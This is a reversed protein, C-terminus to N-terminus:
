TGTSQERSQLLSSFVCTQGSSFGVELLLNIKGRSKATQREIRTIVGPGLASSMIAAGERWDDDKIVDISKAVSNGEPVTAELEGRDESIRLIRDALKLLFEFDQVKKWKEPTIGTGHLAGLLGGTFAAISDTDTGITNVAEIIGDIPNKLNKLAIFLGAVVTSTGSGKTRPDFCGLTELTARTGNNDRISKYVTRLMDQTENITIQYVEEFSMEQSKNWRALWKEINKDRSMEFSFVKQFDIGLQTVFQLPDLSDPERVLMDQITHAYLLAGIIARPHGHTVISNYFIEEKLRKADGINVLAIPLVRMAVGNAGSERYDITKDKVKYTFFNSNWTASKRELKKAAEKLTKGGGRAYSLWMPLEIKSFRINDVRGNPCICRAVSILLQTDDSYSGAKIHDVYGYFRGGVVKAWPVFDAITEVGYKAAVSSSSKEFETTWGLADGVASLVVSGSYKSEAKTM